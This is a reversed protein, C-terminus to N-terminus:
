QYLGNKYMGVSPDGGNGFDNTVIGRIRLSDIFSDDSLGTVGPTFSALEKVTNLNLERLVEGTLAQVALPVEMVSEERKNATVVVEELAQQASAPAAAAALLTTSVAMFLESRTPKM